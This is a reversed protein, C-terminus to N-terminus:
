GGTNRANAGKGHIYSIRNGFNERRISLAVPAKPHLGGGNNHFGIVNAEAIYLFKDAGGNYFFLSAYEDLISEKSEWTQNNKTFNTHREEIRRHDNKPSCM